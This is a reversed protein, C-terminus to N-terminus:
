DYNKEKKEQAIKLYTEQLEKKIIIQFLGLIMSLLSLLIIKKM